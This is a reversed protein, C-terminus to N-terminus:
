SNSSKGAHEPCHRPASMLMGSVKAESAVSAVGCVCRHFCPTSADAIGNVPLTYSQAAALTVMGGCMRRKSAFDVARVRDPCM